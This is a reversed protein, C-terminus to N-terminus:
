AEVEVYYFELDKLDVTQEEGRKQLRKPIVVIITDGSKYSYFGANTTVSLGLRRIAEVTSQHRVYSVIEAKDGWSRITNAVEEPEVKMLTIKCLSKEGCIAKVPLANLFVFRKM